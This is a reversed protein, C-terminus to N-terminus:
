LPNGKHLVLRELEFLMDLGTPRPEATASWAIRVPVDRGDISLTERVMWRRAHEIECRFGITM